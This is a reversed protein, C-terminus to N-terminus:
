RAGKSLVVNRFITFLLKIDLKANINDVYILDTEMWMKFDTEKRFFAQWICGLGPKVSFRQLDTTDYEEIPTSIARPGIVTMEGKLINFLQPLEDISTKRLIRGLKTIRPDRDSKFLKGGEMENLHSLNRQLQHAGEVMTRFKYITFTEGKHGYRTQRFLVSGPSDMKILLATILLLPSLIIVAVLAILYEVAYKVKIYTSEKSTISVNKKSDVKLFNERRIIRVDLRSLIEEM